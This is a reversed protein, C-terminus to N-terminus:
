GEGIVAALREVGELLDPTDYYAFSLRLFNKLGRLSSFKVGPMFEVNRAVANPLLLGADMGDPLALWVFFGGAPDAFRVSEPLRRRLAACMAQMRRSYTDKLLRLNEEMLGLELASRVVGSM